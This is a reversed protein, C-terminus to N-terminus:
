PLATSADTTVPTSTAAATPVAGAAAQTAGPPLSEPGGTDRVPPRKHQKRRMATEIERYLAVIEVIHTSGDAGRVTMTRTHKGEAHGLAYSEFRGGPGGPWDMKLLGALRRAFDYFGTAGDVARGAADVVDVKVEEEGVNVHEAADVAKAARSKPRANAGAGKSTAPTHPMVLAVVTGSVSKLRANAFARLATLRGLQSAVKALVRACGARATVATDFDTESIKCLQENGQLVVFDAGVQVFRPKPWKKHREEWDACGAAHAVLATMYRCAVACEEHRKRVFPILASALSTGVLAKTRADVGADIQWSRLEDDIVAEMKLVNVLRACLTVGALFTMDWVVGRLAEWMGPIKQGDADLCGLIRYMNTLEIECDALKANSEAKDNRARQTEVEAREVRRRLEDTIRKESACKERLWDCRVKVTSISPLHAGFVDMTLASVAKSWETAKQVEDGLQQLTLLQGATTVFKRTHEAVYAARQDAEVGACLRDYLAAAERAGAPWGDRASAPAPAPGVCSRLLALIDCGGAPAAKCNAADEVGTRYEACAALEARLSILTETYAREREDGAATARERAATAQVRGEELAKVQEDLRAAGLALRQVEGTREVLAAGQARVERHYAAETRAARAVAEARAEIESALQVELERVRRDKENVEQALQANERSASLARLDSQEQLAAQLEECTAAAQARLGEAHATAQERLGEAQVTAQERLREAEAAQARASEAQAALERRLSDAEAAAEVQLRAVAAAGAEASSRAAALDERLQRLKGAAVQM